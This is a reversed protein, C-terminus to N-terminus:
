GASEGRYELLVATVNDPGGNGNARAILREVKERLTGPGSLTSVLTAHDVPGHLGDSCMLVVDGPQLTEVHTRILIHEHGGVAMTLVNRNPMSQVREESLGLNTRLENAFNQDYTVQRLEGGRFIYGRSDGVNAIAMEPLRWLALVITSGMGGCERRARAVEIVRRNAERIAEKALEELTLDPHPAMLYGTVTEVTVASGVEGCNRGGIGDALIAAQLSEEISWADENNERARGPDTAGWAAITGSM